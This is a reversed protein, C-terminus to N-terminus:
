CWLCLVRIIRDVESKLENHDTKIEEDISQITSEETNSKARDVADSLHNSPETLGDSNM